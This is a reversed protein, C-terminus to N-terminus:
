SYAESTFQSNLSIHVHKGKSHNTASIRTYRLKTSDLKGSMRDEKGFNERLKGQKRFLLFIFNPAAVGCQQIVSVFTHEIFTMSM